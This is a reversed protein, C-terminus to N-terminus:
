YIISELRTVYATNLDQIGTNRFIRRSTLELSMENDETRRRKRTM